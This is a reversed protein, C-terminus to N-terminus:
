ERSLNLQQVFHGVQKQAYLQAVVVEKVFTVDDVGFLRTGEVM